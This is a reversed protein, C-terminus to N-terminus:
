SAKEQYGAAAAQRGGQWITLMRQTAGMVYRECQEFYTSGASYPDHIYVRKQGGWLGLLTLQAPCAGGLIPVALHRPEMGIVLDHRSLEVQDIRTSIHAALDLGHNEAFAIARSDAPAGGSCDMGASVANAGQARATIEALPSRCINGMCVFVLREVRSWDVDRYRAFAGVRDMVGFRLTELVARKSGYRSNISTTIRELM